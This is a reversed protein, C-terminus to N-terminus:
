LQFTVDPHRHGIDDITYQRRLRNAEESDYQQSKRKNIRRYVLMLALSVLTTLAMLALAGANGKRYIPPDSYAQTGAIGICQAIMNAIASSSARQTYGPNNVMTWTVILVVIPYISAACICTGIFRGTPDTLGLLLGYGLTAIACNICIFLGRVSFRDSLRSWFLIGVFACAYVIVAMLQAKTSSWGFGTLIAPLFYSISAVCFHQAANIIALMWFLPDILLKLIPKLKITSEGTNQAARSRKIIIDKEKENFYVEPASEPSKPLLGIVLFAWGIPVIGEIFFIWRWSAWGDVGDM